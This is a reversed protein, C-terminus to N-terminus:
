EVRGSPSVTTKPNCRLFMQRRFKITLLKNSQYKFKIETRYNILKKFNKFPHKLKQLVTYNDKIIFAKIKKDFHRLLVEQNAM